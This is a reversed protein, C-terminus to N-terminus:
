KQGLYQKFTEFMDKVQLIDYNNFKGFSDISTIKYKLTSDISLNVKYYQKEEEFHEQFKDGLIREYGDGKFVKIKFYYSSKDTWDIKEFKSFLYMLSVKNSAEGTSFNGQKDQIIYIGRLGNKNADLSGEMKPLLFKSYEKKILSSFDTEKFEANIKSLDIKGLIRFIKLTDRAATVRRLVYYDNGTDNKDQQFSMNLICYENKDIKNLDSVVTASDNFLKNDSATKMLLTNALAKGQGGMANNQKKFEEIKAPSEEGKLKYPNVPDTVMFKGYLAMVDEVTRKWYNDLKWRNKDSMTNAGGSTGPTAVGGAIINEATLQLKVLSPKDTLVEKTVANRVEDSEFQKYFEPDNLDIAEGKKALEVLEDGLRSVVPKHTTLKKDGVVVAAKLELLFEDYSSHISDAVVGVTKGTTTVPKYTTLFLDIKDNMELLSKIDVMYQQKDIQLKLKDEVQKNRLLEEIVDVGEIKLTKMDRKLNRQWDILIKENEKSLGSTDCEKKIKELVTNLYEIDGKISPDPELDITGDIIQQEFEDRKKKIEEDSVDEIQVDETEGETEDQTEDQPQVNPQPLVGGGSVTTIIKNVVEFTANNAPCIYKGDVLEPTTKQTTVTAGVILQSLGKETGNSFSVMNDFAVEEEAEEKRIVFWEKVGPGRLNAKITYRLVGNMLIKGLRPKLITKMYVEMGKRKIFGFLKIVASGVLTYEAGALNGHVNAFMTNSDVIGGSSPGAYSGASTKFGDAENIRKYKIFESYKNLNNLNNM